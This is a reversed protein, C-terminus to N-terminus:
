ATARQRRRAAWALGGLAPALLLAAAPIPTISIQGRIEGGPFDMTHINLYANGTILSRFAAVSLVIDKATLQFGSMTSNTTILPMDPHAIVPGNIGPTGAHIHIPGLGGVDMLEGPLIGAVTISLFEITRTDRDVLLSANGLAFSANPTTEQGGSLFAFGQVLTAAGAPTAALTAWALAAVLAARRAFIRM